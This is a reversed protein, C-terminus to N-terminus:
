RQGVSAYTQVFVAKRKAMLYQKSMFTYSSLSLTNTHKLSAVSSGNNCGYIRIGIQVAFVCARFREARSASVCRCM